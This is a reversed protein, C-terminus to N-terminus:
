VGLYSGHPIVVIRRSDLGLEAGARDATQRDHALVVSSSRALVRGGARDLRRTGNSSVPPYVEHVTWVIRYGLLRAATLRAAFTGVDLLALARRALPHRPETGRERRPAYYKDPRWHFHLIAVERRHRWLWRIDFPASPIVEFGVEALSGYLLDAYPNPTGGAPPFRVLRLKRGGANGRAGARSRDRIMPEHDVSLAGRALM